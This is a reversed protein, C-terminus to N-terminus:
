IHKFNYGKYRNGTKCSYSIKSNSFKVGFISESVRSLEAGSVFEGLFVNDKFVAVKKNYHLIMKKCGIKKTIQPSYPPNCWNHENGLLLYRRVTHRDIGYYSAIDVTNKITYNENWFECIEKVLNRTANESCKIWNITNEEINLIDLIGSKLINTKIYNPEGVSCDITKYYSIANSIALQEKRNDNEQTVVAPNWADKYHHSGHVEIITNYKPIYFDYRYNNAWEIITKTAQFVYEIGTQKFLEIFFREAYSYGDGCDCGVGQRILNYILIKKDLVRLCDPCFPNIKINSNVSYKKAEDYGGSFYKVYEPATTPIDNIGVAIIHGSCCPCGIHLMDKEEGMWHDILKGGRYCEMNSNFNCVTCKVKYLKRKKSDKKRDIVILSGCNLSDGINKKYNSDIIGLIAGFHGKVFNTANTDTIRNKYKVLLRQKKSTYKLIEVTYKEDFYEIELFMGATDKWNIKNNKMPLQTIIRNM